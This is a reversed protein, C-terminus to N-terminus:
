TDHFLFLLSELRKVRQEMRLQPKRHHAYQYAHILRIERADAKTLEFFEDASECEFLDVVYQNVHIIEEDGDAYHLIIGGPAHESELLMKDRYERRLPNDTGCGM